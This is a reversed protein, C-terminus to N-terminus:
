VRGARSWWCCWPLFPDDMIDTIPEQIKRIHFDNFEYWQWWWWSWSWNIAWGVPCVSPHVSPIYLSWGSVIRWLWKSHKIFLSICCCCCCVRAIMVVADSTSWWGLFFSIKEREVSREGFIVFFCCFFINLSFHRAHFQVPIQHIESKSWWRVCVRVVCVQQQILGIWKFPM